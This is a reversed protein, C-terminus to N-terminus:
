GPPLCSIRTRHHGLTGSRPGNRARPKPASANAALWAWAQTGATSSPRPARSGGSCMTSCHMAAMAVTRCAMVCSCCPPHHHAHDQPALQGPVGGGGRPPFDRRGRRRRLADLHQALPVAGAGVAKDPHPRLAPGDEGPARRAPTHMDLPRNVLPDERPQADRPPPIVGKGGLFRAVGPHEALFTPAAIPRPASIPSRANYRRRIRCARGYQSWRATRNPTPSSALGIASSLGTGSLIATSETSPVRGSGWKRWASSGAVTTPDAVARSATATPSRSATAASPWSCVSALLNM